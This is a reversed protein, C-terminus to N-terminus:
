RGRPVSPTASTARAAPSIRRARSVVWFCGAAFALSVIALAIHVVKFGTTHTHDKAINRIFVAWVFVTWGGFVYLFTATRRTM